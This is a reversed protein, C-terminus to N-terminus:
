SRRRCAPARLACGTAPPAACTFDLPGEAVVVRVAKGAAEGRLWARAEYTGARRRSFTAYSGDGRAEVTCGEDDAAAVPAGGSPRVTVYFEDEASPAARRNGLPRARPRCARWRPRRWTRWATTRRGGCAQQQRAAERLAALTCAAPHTRRRPARRGVRAPARRRRRAAAHRRARGAARPHPQHRGPPCRSAARTTTSSARWRSPPPAARRRPSSRSIRSWRTCRRAPPARSISTTRLVAEAFILRPSEGARVTTDALGLLRCRRVRRLHALGEISGHHLTPQRCRIKGAAVPGM